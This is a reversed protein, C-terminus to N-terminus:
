DELHLHFVEPISFFKSEEVKKKFPSFTLFYKNKAEILRLTKIAGLSILPAIAFAYIIEGRQDLAVLALPEESRHPPKYHPIPILGKEKVWQFLVCKITEVIIAEHRLTPPLIKLAKKIYIKIEKEM